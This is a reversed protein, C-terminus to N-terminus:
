LLLMNLRHLSIGHLVQLFNLERELLALIDKQTSLSQGTPAATFEGVLVALVHM